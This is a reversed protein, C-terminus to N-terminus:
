NEPFLNKIKKEFEYARVLTQNKEARKRWQNDDDIRWFTTVEDDANASIM